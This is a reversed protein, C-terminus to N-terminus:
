LAGKLLAPAFFIDLFRAVYATENVVRPSVAPYRAFYGFNRQIYGINFNSISYKDDYRFFEATTLSNSRFFKQAHWLDDLGTRGGLEELWGKRDKPYGRNDFLAKEEPSLRELLM